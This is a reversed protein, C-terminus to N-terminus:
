ARQHKWVSVTSSHHKRDHSKRLIRCIPERWGVDIRSFTKGRNTSRYLGNLSLGSKVKLEQSRKSHTGAPSLHCPLLGQGGLAAIFKATPATFRAAMGDAVAVSVIGRDQIVIPCDQYAKGPLATIPQVCGSRWQCDVFLNPNTASMAAAANHDGVYMVFQQDSWQRNFNSPIPITGGIVVSASWEHHLVKAAPLVLTRSGPVMRVM